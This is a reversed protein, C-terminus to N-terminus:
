NIYVVVYPVRTKNFTELDYIVIKTPPSQVKKSKSDYKIFSTVHKDSIVNDVVKFIPKLEDKIVQNFSINDSKWILCFHINHM